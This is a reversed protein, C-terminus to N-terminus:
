CDLEDQSAYIACKAIRYCFAQQTHEVLECKVTDSKEWKDKLSADYGFLSPSLVSYARENTGLYITKVIRDWDVSLRLAERLRETM